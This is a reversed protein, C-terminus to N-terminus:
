HFFSAIETLGVRFYTKTVIIMIQDNFYILKFVLCSKINITTCKLIHLIFDSIVSVTRPATKLITFYVAELKQIYKTKSVVFM